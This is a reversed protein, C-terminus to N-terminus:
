HAGPLGMAIKGHEHLTPLTKVAFSQLAPSVQASKSAKTFLEIAQEQGQTMDRCYAMDFEEGQLGKLVDLKEQYEADLQRPVAYSSAVLKELQANVAGHDSMMRQGYSKVQASGARSQALKGAEVEFMSAMSATAVFSQSTVPGQDAAFTTAALCMLALAVIKM